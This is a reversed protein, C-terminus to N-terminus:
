PGPTPAALQAALASVQRRLEEDAWFGTHAGVRPLPQGYLFRSTPPDPLQEDVTGSMKVPGGIYDTDCWFNRWYAVKIGPGYALRRFLGDGFYAPFGWAYLTRLPSGFTVLAVRDGVPRADAQALAAVAIISGQSHAALLPTGGNDHLWWLRRQLEPVAREAYSPPALPHSHRPWFTAVDWLVGISRRHREDKWGLRLLVLLLAPLLMAAGSCATILWNPNTPPGGSTRLRWQIWVFLVGGVVAVATLLLDLDRPAQALRRARAVRGPWKRVLRRQWEPVPGRKVTSVWWEPHAEGAVDRPCFYDFVAQRGTWGSILLRVLQYLVFCAVLLLPVAVLYPTINRILPFVAIPTENGPPTAVDLCGGLWPDHCPRLTGLWEAVILLMALMFTNLVAMAVGLVVFPAAWRFRGDGGESLAGAVGVAIGLGTGIWIWLSDTGWRALVAVGGAFAAGVLVTRRAAGPWNERTWAGAVLTVPVLFLTLFVVGYVADMFVQLGPLEHPGAGLPDGAPRSVALVAAGAMAAGAVGLLAWSRWLYRKGVTDARLEIACLAVVAAPVALLPWLWAVEVPRVGNATWAVLAAVLALSGAVHLRTLARTHQVGNWFAPDRLGPFGNAQEPREKGPGPAAPKIQDYRNQTTHALLYLVGILLLPALAGVLIRVAPLDPPLVWAPWRACSPVGGCQYAVYDIPVAAALLVLNLTLGFSALRAAWRFLRFRVPRDALWPPFMHAAMNALAFPLLVLWLVRWSSGSTLGGWSYAEVHRGDRDATRYFGAIRDGAVQTPALDGLLSAPSTGGVGHLRLETVGSLDDPHHGTVHSTHQSM